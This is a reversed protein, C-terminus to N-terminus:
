DLFEETTQKQKIEHTHIIGSILLTFLLLSIDFIRDILLIMENNVLANNYERIILYKMLNITLINMFFTVLWFLKLYDLGSKIRKRFSLSYIIVISVAFEVLLIFRLAPYKCNFWVLTITMFFSMTWFPLNLNRDKLIQSHISIYLILLFIVLNVISAVISYDM